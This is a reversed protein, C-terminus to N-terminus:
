KELNPYQKNIKSDVILKAETMLRESEHNAKEFDFKGNTLHGCDVVIAGLHLSLEGLSTRVEPVLHFLHSRITRVASITPSLLPIINDLGSISRIRKQIHRLSEMAHFIEKEFSLQSIFKANDHTKSYSKLNDKRTELRRQNLCKIVDHTVQTVYDIRPKLSSPHVFEIQEIQMM